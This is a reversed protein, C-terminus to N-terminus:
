VTNLFKILWNNLNHIALGMQWKTKDRPEIYNSVARIQAFPVHEALCVYHFAAGEMSEVRCNYRQVLRSITSEKGSVMNVTLGSVQQLTIKEHVATQPCQLVSGSFPYVNKQILGMDFIDLHKEHDEAGMDGYQEGTVFVVEGLPIDRDFSGGIGAQMAFDHHRTLLAKTINYATATMGVGSICITVITNDHEYTHQSRKSWHTEMYEKLPAIEAETAAALLINM